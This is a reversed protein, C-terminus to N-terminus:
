AQEHPEKWGYSKAVALCLAATRTDSWESVKIPWRISGEEVYSDRGNPGPKWMEFNYQTDYIMWVWEWGDREVKDLLPECDAFARYYDPLRRVEAVGAWENGTMIYIDDPAWSIHTYDGGWSFCARQFGHSKDRFDKVTHGMVREALWRNLADPNTM